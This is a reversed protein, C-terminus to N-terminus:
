QPRGPWHEVFDAGAAFDDLWHALDVPSRWPPAYSDPDPGDLSPDFWWMVGEAASADTCATIGCGLDAIPVVGAPWEWDYRRLQRRSLYERAAESPRLLSHPYGVVGGAGVKLWAERLLAPFPLGIIGEAEAIEDLAVAPGTPALARALREIPDSM